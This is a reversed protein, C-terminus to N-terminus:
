VVVVKVNKLGRKMASQMAKLALARPVRLIVQGKEVSENVHQFRCKAGHRCPRVTGVSECFADKTKRKKSSSTRKVSKKGSSRTRKKKVTWNDVIPLPEVQPEVQPEVKVVEDVHNWCSESSKTMVQRTAKVVQKKVVAKVVQKKVVSLKPMQSMKPLSMPLGLRCCYCQMSEGPHRFSCKRRSCNVYEDGNKRVYNCSEKFFCEAVQLEGVSHAYRCRAGHPCKRKMMISNCMKTCKLTKRMDTKDTLHNLGTEVQQERESTRTTFNIILLLPDTVQEEKTEKIKNIKVQTWSGNDVEDQKQVRENELKASRKNTMMEFMDIDKQEQKNKIDLEKVANNDAQVCLMMRIRDQEDNEHDNEIQLEIIEDEDEPEEVEIHEVKIIEINEVIRSGNKFEESRLNEAVKKALQVQKRKLVRRAKIVADQQKAADSGAQVNSRARSKGGGNRRHGFPLNKKQKNRRAKRDLWGNRKLKKQIERAERLRKIRGLRSEKPLRAMIEANNDDKIKQKLAAAMQEMANEDAMQQRRKNDEKEDEDTLMSQFETWTTYGTDKTTQESLLQIVWSSQCTESSSREVSECLQNSDNDDYSEYGSDYERKSDGGEYPHESAYFGMSEYQRESATIYSDNNNQTM